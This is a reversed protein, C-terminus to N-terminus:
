RSAKKHFSLCFVTCRCAFSCFNSSFCSKLRRACWSSSVFYCHCTCPRSPGSAPLVSGPKAFFRFLINHPPSVLALHLLYSTRRQTPIPMVANPGADFTYACLNRGSAKNLAHVTAVVARSVDNMYFIPPFTDLCTAHFQNSDMM